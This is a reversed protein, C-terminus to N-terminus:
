RDGFAFAFYTYRNRTTHIVAMRQLRFIERRM